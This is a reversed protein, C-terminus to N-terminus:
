DWSDGAGGGGFDGGGGSFDDSPTYDHSPTTDVHDSSAYIGAAVLWMDNCSHCDVIPRRKAQYKPHKKCKSM